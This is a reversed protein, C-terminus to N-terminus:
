NEFFLKLLKHTEVERSMFNQGLHLQPIRKLTMLNDVRKHQGALLNFRSVCIQKEPNCAVEYEGVKPLLIKFKHMELVNQMEYGINEKARKFSDCISTGSFIEFYFTKTFNLVADDSIEYDYEVCIVHKAGCSRFIHGAFESHCAAVFVFDFKHNYRRM